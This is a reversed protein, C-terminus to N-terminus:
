ILSTESCLLLGSKKCNRETIHLFLWHFWIHRCEYYEAWNFLISKSCPLSKNEHLEDILGDHNPSRYICWSVLVDNAHIIAWWRNPALGNGSGIIAWQWKSGWVEATFNLNFCLLTWELFHSKFHKCFPLWKTEAEIHEPWICQFCFIMLKVMKTTM